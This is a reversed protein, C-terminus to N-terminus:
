FEDKGNSDRFMLKIPTGEFDFAARIKNELYNSYSTVLLDADNCFFIFKPPHVSVQTCHTIKMRRGAKSPPPNVGIADGIIENLVGMKIHKGSNEYVKKIAPMLQNLKQGTKASLFLPKIYRMFSFDLEINKLFESMTSNNKEILDWKNVVLLNPKGERDIFSAIKQDQDTIGLTADVVLLVVDARRISEIARLVSYSEISDMEVQSKKRMGATDIILYEEDEYTFPIDIADRTTGAISSVLMRQSNILTNVLSSKGANPKGVVAIKVIDKDAEELTLKTKLSEVVADLVDGIGRGHEASVAFPEGLKLAYFEYSKEVENNDLKNVVLVIPKGSKRLFEAVEYDTTMLGQKGDVFLIIVEALEVAISAQRIINVNIENKEQFDLGGTDVLSFPVGCWEADGYIRDRTVGPIDKVISIKKGCVKNFFTSKGVNPRGVIAVLPKKM